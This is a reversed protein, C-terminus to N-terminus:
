READGVLYGVGRITVVNVDAKAERLRKRLRSIIAEVSNLSVDEGFGHLKEDITAKSVVKGRNRILLELVDFERRTMAVTEGDAAVSRSNPDLSVNGAALVNSLAIAPRRLLARVRAILEEMSFPKIMYDDAGADLGAVRDKLGDRATVVLIPISRRQRRLGKILTMGDSDPLGLDVIAADYDIAQLAAEADLATACGDVAFGARQLGAATLQCLRENDEVLLLRM